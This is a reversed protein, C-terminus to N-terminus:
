LQERRVRASRLHDLCLRSAVVVLWGRVDDIADVDTRMLRVFAEQVVDEADSINGLMRFALDRLYRRHDEWAEAIPMGEDHEMLGRETPHACSSSGAAASTVDFAVPFRTVRGRGAGDEEPM